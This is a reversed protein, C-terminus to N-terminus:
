IKGIIKQLHSIQVAESNVIDIVFKIMKIKIILINLKKFNNLFLIIEQKSM